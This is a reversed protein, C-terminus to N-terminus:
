PERHIAAVRPAAAEARRPVRPVLQLLDHLHLLVLLPLPTVAARKRDPVAGARLCVVLYSSGCGMSAHLVMCRRPPFLDLRHRLYSGGHRSHLYMDSRNAARNHKDTRSWASRSCMCPWLHQAIASLKGLLHLVDCLPILAILVGFFFLVSGLFTLYARPAVSAAEAQTLTEHEAATRNLTQAELLETRMDRGRVVCVMKIESFLFIFLGALLLVNGSLVWFVVATLFEPHQEVYEGLRKLSTTMDWEDAIEDETVLAPSALAGKNAGEVVSSAHSSASDLVASRGKLRARRQTRPMKTEEAKQAARGTTSSIAGQGHAPLSLVAGAARPEGSAAAGALLAACLMWAFWRGGRLRGREEALAPRCARSDHSM